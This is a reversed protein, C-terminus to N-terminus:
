LAFLSWIFFSVCPPRGSNLGDSNRFRSWIVKLLPIWWCPQALSRASLRVRRLGNYDACCESNILPCHVSDPALVRRLGAVILTAKQQAQHCRIVQSSGRYIQFYVGFRFPFWFHLRCRFVHPAHGFKSAFASWDSTHSLARFSSRLDWIVSRKMRNLCPGSATRNTPGPGM